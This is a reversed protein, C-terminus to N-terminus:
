KVLPNTLYTRPLSQKRATGEWFPSLNIVDGGGGRDNFSESEAQTHLRAPQRPVPSGFGGRSILNEIHHGCTWKYNQM